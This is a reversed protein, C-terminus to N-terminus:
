VQAEGAEPEGTQNLNEAEAFLADFGAMADDIEHCGCSDVSRRASHDFLEIWILPIGDPWIPLGSFMRIEYTGIRAISIAKSAVGGEPIRSLAIFAQTTRLRGSTRSFKM